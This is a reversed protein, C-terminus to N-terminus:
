KVLVEVSQALQGNKFLEFRHKGLVPTWMFTGAEKSAAKKVGNIRWEIRGHGTAEAILPMKQNKKPIAPDLALIMGNQPYLIRAQPYKEPASSEALKASPLLPSKAPYKEELYEMLKRWIPAAGTVGLVNWMPAGNFNGVWVGVTFRANYGVCWNDRMDKSTGTKVAVGPLSLISDLGFSLARNESAMLIQSVQIVSDESFVKETSSIDDVTFNLTSYVGGNALTRYSQTLDELSVDAVGLALAPGYHEPDQLNKFHLAQLKSWFTTDNLLKFVKVAPVNLSSGLATKAKVWGYFKQDHNQPKYVGTEFVIDVGSDELWSEASLIGREFATAYLFPKLTSGAQRFSQVGDVYQTEADLGSGGLYAWVQGTKNEVVLVAADHVNRDKLSRVQSQILEQAYMQVDRHLFTKVEGKLGQNHLRQAFHIAKKESLNGARKGSNRYIWEHMERCESREQWCARQSWAQLNANPARVLVALLTSERLTLGAPRKEFLAESVSAIGRYEGRFSILNLYAELIQEKNWEQELRLAAVVQRIKGLFGNYQSRQSSILKVTQMSVTSAGRPSRHFLRQYFSAALAKFDVGWHFYFKRDESKLIAKPLSPSMDRLATWAVTKLQKNQRWRHLAMGKSDLVVLESIKYQSKVKEFSPLDEISSVLLAMGLVAAATVGLIFYRYKKIVRSGGM